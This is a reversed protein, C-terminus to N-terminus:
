KMFHDDGCLLCPYKDKRKGKNDNEMAVAKTNGQQNRPKKNKGKGKKKNDPTQMSQIANVETSVTPTSPTTTSTSKQKSHNVISSPQISGVVGDVLTEIPPKTPDTSPFHAQPILDYLTGSQSYVLKLYQTHSIAKEETVVSGM